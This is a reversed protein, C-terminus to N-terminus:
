NTGDFVAVGLDQTRWISIVSCTRITISGDVM